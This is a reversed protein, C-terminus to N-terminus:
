NAKPEIMMGLNVYIAKFEEGLDKMEEDFEIHQWLVKLDVNELNSLETLQKLLKSVFITSSSNLYELTFIFSYSFKQNPQSFCEEHLSKFWDIIPNYFEEVDEPRSDGELIFPTGDMKLRVKPTIKTQEISFDKM